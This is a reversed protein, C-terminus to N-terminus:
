FVASGFPFRIIVVSSVFTREKRACLTLESWRALLGEGVQLGVPDPDGVPDIGGVDVCGSSDDVEGAM